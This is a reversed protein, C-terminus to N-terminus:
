SDSVLITLNYHKTKQNANQAVSSSVVISSKTTSADVSRRLGQHEYSLRANFILADDPQEILDALLDKESATFDQLSKVGGPGKLEIAPSTEGVASLSLSEV